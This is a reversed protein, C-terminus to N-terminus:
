PTRPPRFVATDLYTERSDNESWGPIGQVPLPPLELVDAHELSAAALEDLEVDAKAATHLLLCKGTMGPFPMLCKELLGHGVVMFRMDQIVEQRASWFLDTWRKGRLLDLLEQRPSAVLVGSEDLLTLRDRLKGRLKQESPHQALTQCHRLNIASKLRTFRLWVLANLYDHLNNERTPICGTAAISQEYEAASAPKPEASFRLPKGNHTHFIGSQAAVANLLALSDDGQTRGILERYPAFAPHAYAKL